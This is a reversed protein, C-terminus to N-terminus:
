QNVGHFRKEAAVPVDRGEGHGDEGLKQQEAVLNVAVAVDAEDADPAYGGDSGHGANQVGGVAENGSEEVAIDPKIVGAPVAVAQLGLDLAELEFVLGEAVGQFGGVTEFDEGGVLLPEGGLGQDGRDDAGAGVGVGAHHEEVFARAGADLRAHGDEGGVADDALDLGHEGGGREHEQDAIRRRGGANQEFLGAHMADHFAGAEALRADVVDGVLFLDGDALADVGGPLVADVGLSEQDARHGGDLRATIELVDGDVGAGAQVAQLLYQYYSSSNVLVEGVGEGAGLSRLGEQRRRRGLDAVSEEVGYGGGSM